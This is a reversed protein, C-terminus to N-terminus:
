KRILPSALLVIIANYIYTTSLVLGVDITWRAEDGLRKKQNDFPLPLPLFLPKPTLCYDVMVM